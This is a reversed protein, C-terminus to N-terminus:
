SNMCPKDKFGLAFLKRLFQIIFSKDSAFNLYQVFGSLMLWVQPLCSHKFADLRTKLKGCGSELESWNTQIVIIKVM